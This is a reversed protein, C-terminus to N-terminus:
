LRRGRVRRECGVLLADRDGHQEPDDHQRAHGPQLEHFRRVLDFGARGPVDLVRHAGLQRPRHEAVERGAEVEDHTRGRQDQHQGGVRREVAERDEARDQGLVPVQRALQVGTAVPQREGVADHEQRDEGADEDHAEVGLHGPQDLEVDHAHEHRERQRLGAHQAM